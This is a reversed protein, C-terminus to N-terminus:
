AAGILPHNPSPEISVMRHYADLMADALVPNKEVQMWFEDEPGFFDGLTGPYRLQSAQAQVMRWFTEESVVASTGIAHGAYQFRNVLPHVCSAYLKHRGNSSRIMNKFLALM